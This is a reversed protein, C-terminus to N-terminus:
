WGTLDTSQIAPRLMYPLRGLARQASQFSVPDIEVILVADIGIDGDLIDRTRVM